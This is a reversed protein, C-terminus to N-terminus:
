DKDSGTLFLRTTAWLSKRKSLLGHLGSGRIKKPRPRLGNELPGRKKFGAYFIKRMKNATM